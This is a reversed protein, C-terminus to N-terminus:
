QQPNAVVPNSDEDTPKDVNKNKLQGEISVLKDGDFIVAIREEILTKKGHQVQFIYDWRQDNFSDTVMPTGMIFRVQRKTMGIELQDLMDQKVINGQPVRMKYVGPFSCGAVLLSGALVLAMLRTM